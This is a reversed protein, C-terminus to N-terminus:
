RRRRLALGALGLLALASGAPEPISQSTFTLGIDVMSEVGEGNSSISMSAVDPLIGASCELVLTFAEEPSLIGAGMLYIHMQQMGGSAFSIINGTTSESLVLTLGSTLAVNSFNSLTMSGVGSEDLRLAVDACELTCADLVISGSGSNRIHSDATIYNNTLLLADAGANEIDTDVLDLDVMTYAEAEAAASVARALASGLTLEAHSLAGASGSSAAALRRGSLSVNELEAEAAGAKAGVRLGGMVLTGSEKVRVLARTSDAPEEGEMLALAAAETANAAVIGAGTDLTTAGDEVVLGAGAAVSITNSLRQEGSLSIAGEQVSFTGTHGSLDGTLCMSGAGKKLVHGNGSIANALGHDAAYDFVLVHDSDPASFNLRIAGTGAVQENHAYTTAGGADSFTLLGEDAKEQTIDFDGSFASVDGSFIYEDGVSKGSSARAILFSGSDSFAGSFTYKGNSYGNVIKLGYDNVASAKLHFDQAFTLTANPLYSGSGGSAGELTITSGAAAYSNFNIENTWAQDLFRWDADASPSTVTLAGAGTKTMTGSFGGMNTVISAGSASLVYHGSGELSAITKGTGAYHTLTAGEDLVLHLGTAASAASASGLSNDASVRLRTGAALTLNSGEGLAEAAVLHLLAGSGINLTSGALAGTAEARLEGGAGVLVSAGSVASAASATLLGGENVTISSGYVAEAATAALKGNVSISEVSLARAASAELLGGANVAISGGSVAGAAMAEMRGGENVTISNGSLSGAAAARLLSDPGVEVTSEVLANAADALLTGEHLVVGGGFRNGSTALQLEAGSAVTLTTEDGSISGRGEVRYCTEDKVLMSPPAVTEHLAVRTPSAAGNGSAVGSADFVVDYADGYASGGEGISWSASYGKDWEGHGANWYLRDDAAVMLYVASGSEFLSLRGNLTDALSFNAGSHNTGDILTYSGGQIDKTYNLDIQITVNGSLGNTVTLQDSNSGETFDYLLTLVPSGAGSSSGTISKVTYAAPEAVGSDAFRLTLADTYKVSAKSLAQESLLTLEAGAEAAVTANFSGSGGIGVHSGSTITATGLGALGGRLNLQAKESSALQITKMNEITVLGTLETTNHEGRLTAAAKVTFANGYSYTIAKDDTGANSFNLTTGVTVAGAGLATSSTSRQEGRGLTVGATNTIELSGHSNAADARLTLLANGALTLRRGAGSITGLLSGGNEANNGYSGTSYSAITANGALSINGHLESGCDVRLAGGTGASDVALPNNSLGSGTATASAHSGAYADGSLIFDTYCSMGTSAGVGSIRDTVVVQSGSLVEITASNLASLNSCGMLNEGVLLRSKGEVRVTGDFATEQAFLTVTQSSYFYAPISFLSETHSKQLARVVVTGTGSVEHFLRSDAFNAGFDTRTGFNGNLTIDLTGGEGLVIRNGAAQVGFSSHAATASSGALTGGNVRIDGEYANNAELTLTGSGEKVLNLRASGAALTGAVFSTSSDNDIILSRAEAGRNVISSGAAASLERVTADTEQLALTAGQQLTLSAASSLADADNLVLTISGMPVGQDAAEARLRGGVTVTGNFDNAHALIISGGSLGQADISMAGSGSLNTALELTGSGGFHYDGDSSLRGEYRLTGADQAAGLAMSALQSHSGSLELDQSVVGSEASLALVGTAGERIIGLLGEDGEPAALVNGYNVAVRANGLAEVGDYTLFNNFGRILIDGYFDNDRNGLHVTGGTFDNGIVLDGQGTLKFNVKLTGGGGGFRWAGQTAHLEEATGSIGYEIVRGEAAGLLLGAHGAMDLAETQDADMALVGVSDAHVHSLLASGNQGRVQMIGEEGINWRGSEASTDGLAALSAFEVTGQMLSKRGSFDNEGSLVLKGGGMKEMNGQGSIDSEYRLTPAGAKTEVRLTADETTLSLTGMHSRIDTVDEKVNRGNVYEQAAHVTNKVVFCGENVVVDGELLAHDALTFTAGNNVSVAGTQMIAYTYDGAITALRGVSGTHLTLSGQLILNGSNVEYGGRNSSVGTLVWTDAPSAAEYVVKLLGQEASGGDEFSGKFTGKGTYTFTALGPAELGRPARNSITAGYESGSQQALANTNISEWTLDHGNLNLVGGMHGFTFNNGNIQNDAMLVISAVGASLMISRAAYGGERALRVEGAHVINGQEDFRMSGGGVNLTINNDGAGAITMIGEGVKRWEEGRGNLTTIVEAGENVIFGASDVITFDGASSSALEYHGSDFTVSATGMDVDAALEIRQQAASSSFVLGKTATKNTNDANAGTYTWSQEGQTLSGVGTADDERGGWILTTGSAGLDIGTDFFDILNQTATPNHDFLGISGYGQVTGASLVGVTEFRGNNENYAFIPSGSDGSRVLIELPMESSADLRATIRYYGTSGYNSQVNTVKSLGGLASGPALGIESGVGTAQRPLGNGARFLYVQNRHMNALFDGDTCIPTYVVDTVIKSLRQTLLDAGYTGYGAEGKYIIGSTQGIANSGSSCLFNIKSRSDAFGNHAATMFYQPAILGGGGNGRPTSGDWISIGTWYAAYSNMSPMLPIVNGVSTGDKRFVEIDMSGPRFQGQNMAFDKYQQLEYDHRIIGAEALGPCLAVAGFTAMLVRFLPTPLHLKM